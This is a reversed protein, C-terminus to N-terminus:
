LRGLTNITQGLLEDQAQVMRQAAEYARTVSVMQTMLQAPDVNAMELSGQAVTGLEESSPAGAAAFLNPLDRTLEAAPDTFGALGLRAAAEGNVTITGDSQVYIPGEPLEVPQGGDDLVRYGDVTVLQGQADRSFRGDRTYREGADTQVRFFGAGSIALDLAEGTYKVGGATFDTEEPSSEVGLGLSGLYRLGSLNSAGGPPHVVPTEAFDELSILVEKFGPTDMNAVNHALAQQRALGALMASAAAYLGKIM